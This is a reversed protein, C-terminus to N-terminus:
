FSTFGGIVAFSAWHRTHYREPLRLFDLQAQRLAEATSLSKQKRYRHFNIMLQATPQSDVRWLSAAVLPVGASLFARALSITGEGGYSRGAGTQCASLIVLRPRLLQLTQIESAQLSGDEAATREDPEAAFVLRSRTPSDEDVVAHSAIHIVDARRMKEKIRGEHADDDTLALSRAYIKAIVRAEDRAAPLDDLAPFNRRDFRPNGVSLLTEESANGKERARSTCKILITSSPAFSLRYSEILYRKNVPSVLAAFPLLNLTHDPVIFLDRQCDLWKEVPGILIRHLDCAQAIITDKDANDAFIARIFSRVKADLQEATIQFEAPEFRDATIHWVLLRKGLASYQVIQAQPPLQRQIEDLPLPLAVAPVVPGSGPRPAPPQGHANLLDLLSRARCLESYAFTRRSDKLRTHTFEMALDYISQEVDFFSHRAPDSEIKARYEEFIALTVEIENEAALQDDRAVHALLRGKHAEYLYAPFDLKQYLRIAQDYNVLAKDPDNMRRYIHGLRLSANAIMNARTNESTIGRAEEIARLGNRVGEDNRHLSECILGLRAYSRSKILPWDAEEALLAAEQAFGLAAGRLGLQHYNLATEYYFPWSQRPKLAENEMLSFAQQSLRLAEAHQNLKTRTSVIVQLNRLTLAVDKIREALEQSLNAYNIAQTFENNSTHADAICNLAQARLWLYGADGALGSLRELLTLGQELHEKTPMRVFCFGLWFEALAAECGDGLFAFQRRAQEYQAQALDFESSDFYKHGAKFAARAKAFFPLKSAAALKYCRALDRIFPDGSRRVEVEGTFALLRLREAAEAARGNLAANLYDDILKQCVSNGTRERSRSLVQWAAEADGTQSAALVVQFTEEFPAAQTKREELLRLNEKAEEAWRSRPDKELYKLWDAKAQSPLNMRQYLLARNFLAQLATEDLELALNLRELSRGFLEMNGGSESGLKGKEMLATGLDSHLAADNPASRIAAEFQAIAKDFEGGALYYRGAAAQSTPDPREYVAGLLLKAARDLAVQDVSESAGPKDQGRGGRTDDWRAYDFGYIRAELPRSAQYARNLAILGQDIESRKFFNLWIGVGFVVALGAAALGWAPTLGRLRWALSLRAPHAAVRTQGARGVETKMAHRRMATALRLKERQEPTSLFYGEFQAREPPPLEDYIYSDILEEEVVLLRELHEPLSLLWEEVRNEEGLPLMGLLYLRLREDGDFTPEM